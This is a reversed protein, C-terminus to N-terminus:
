VRFSYGGGVGRRGWARRGEGRALVFSLAFLLRFSVGLSAHVAFGDHKKEVGLVPWVFFAFGQAASM